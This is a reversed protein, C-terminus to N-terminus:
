LLQIKKDSHLFWPGQIRARYESPSEFEIFVDDSFQMRWTYKGIEEISFHREDTNKLKFIAAARSSAHVVTGHEFTTPFKRPSGCCNM